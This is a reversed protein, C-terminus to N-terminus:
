HCPAPRMQCTDPYFEAYTTRGQMDFHISAGYTQPGLMYRYDWVEEPKRPFTMTSVPKGVLREVEEKTTQPKIPAFDAEKLTWKPRVGERWGMGEPSACASLAALGVVVYLLGFRRM